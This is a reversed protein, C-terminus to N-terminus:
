TCILTTLFKNNGITTYFDTYYKYDMHSVTGTSSFCASFLTMTSIACFACVFRAPVDSSSSSPIIRNRHVIYTRRLLTFFM